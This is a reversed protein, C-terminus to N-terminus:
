LNCFLSLLSLLPKYLPTLGQVSYKTRHIGFSSMSCVFLVLTHFTYILFDFAFNAM